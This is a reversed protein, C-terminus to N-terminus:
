APKRLSERVICPFANNWSVFHHFRPRVIAAGCDVLSSVKVCSPAYMVSYMSKIYTGSNRYVDTMGGNSAQTQVQTLMLQLMTMFVGGRRSTATYTNVDENILGSFEFRRNTACVFSNMAKRRFVGGPITNAGGIWDGGQSMCLSLLYPVSELLAVMATLVGDM